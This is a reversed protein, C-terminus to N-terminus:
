TPSSDFLREHRGLFTDGTGWDRAGLTDELVGIKSITPSQYLKRNRSDIRNPEPKLGSSEM